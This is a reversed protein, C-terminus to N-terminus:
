PRGPDDPTWLSAIEEDIIALSEYEESSLKFARELYLETLRASASDSLPAVRILELARYKGPLSSAIARMEALTAEVLPADRVELGYRLSGLQRTLTELRERESVTAYMLARVQPSDDEPTAREEAGARDPPQQTISERYSQAYADSIEIVQNLLASPDGSGTDPGGLLIDDSRLEALGLIQAIAIPEPIPPIPLFAAQPALAGAGLQNAFMPPMYKALDLAIPPVIVYTALVQEEGRGGFYLFAHGVPRAPDGREYILGSM